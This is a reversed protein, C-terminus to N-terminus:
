GIPSSATPVNFGGVSLVPETGDLDATRYTASITTSEGPFLSFLNRSYDVPAVEDGGPGATIAARLFFAVDTASGNRVTIEVTERDGRVRRAASATVATDRPLDHLGSLDAYTSVPTHFWSHHGALADPRAALWYLNDSVVAGARDLLRLRLFYTGTVRRVAPVRLVSSSANAPATLDAVRVTRRRRLSPVDYVTASATLGSRPRLTSNTVDVRGTAYDYAIHLPENAEQTGFFAGGPQLSSPFLNWNVSPWAADLM